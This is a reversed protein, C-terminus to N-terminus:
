QAKRHKLDDLNIVGDFGYVRELAEDSVAVPGLDGNWSAFYSWWVGLAHMGPIDPVRGVETLAIIKKGDFRALLNQWRTVLPDNIDTPYADVGLIDVVDDGPYWAPDESTLVWILNHLSHHNTLRDYTLRWLKKFAEPGSAGWWFWAGESEHLPRWLVAIGAAQVKKLEVAIADIDSLLAAYEAAGQNALTDALNFRSANSYFGRWWPQHDNNLLHMPANWHWSLSLIFGREQVDAITKEIFWKPYGGHQVRSLSYDMLDVTMIAPLRGIRREIADFDEQTDQGSLTHQGYHDALYRLLAQAQVSADPNVPTPDVPKPKALPKAPILDIYDVDYFHWGGGVSLTQPGPQLLVLGASLAEFQNTPPFMGSIILDNVGLEFAKEGGPTRFGVVIEYYGGAIATNWRVGEGDRDFGNVYGVGSHGKVASAVKTGFLKGDEAELRLRQPAPYSTLIVAHSLTQGGATVTLTFQFDTTTKVPPAVFTLTPSSWNSATVSDGATQEWAIDYANTPDLNIIATLNVTTGANIHRSLGNDVRIGVSSRTDFDRAQHAGSVDESGDESSTRGCACLLICLSIIACAKPFHSHFASGNKIFIMFEFGEPAFNLTNGTVM